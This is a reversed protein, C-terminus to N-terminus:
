VCRWTIGPRAFAVSQCLLARVVLAVAVYPVAGGFAVVSGGHASSTCAHAHLLFWLGGLLAATAATGPGRPLNGRADDASAARAAPRRRGRRALALLMRVPFFTGTTWLVYLAEAAILALAAAALRRAGLCSPPSRRSRPGHQAPRLRRPHRVPLSFSPARGGRDSSSTASPSRACSPPASALLLGRSGVIVRFGSPLLPGVLACRTQADHSSGAPALAERDRHRLPHGVFASCSSRAAVARLFVDSRVSPERMAARVLAGLGSAGGARRRGPRGRASSCAGGGRAGSRASGAVRGRRARRDPRRSCRPGAACPVSDNRTGDPPLCRGRAPGLSHRSRPSSCRPPRAPDWRGPGTTSSAPRAAALASPRGSRVSRASRLQGMLGV